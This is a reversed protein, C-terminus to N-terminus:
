AREFRLDLKANGEADRVEILRTVVEDGPRFSKEDEILLTRVIPGDILAISGVTFPAQRSKGMHLHVQASALLKGRGSLPRTELDTRGCRECGYAQMPFFVYGCPCAGGILAPHAPEASSGEATYLSPKLLDISM